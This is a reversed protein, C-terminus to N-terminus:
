RFDVFFLIRRFRKRRLVEYMLAIALRTKGTGTAMALLIDRQGRTIADEVAQIAKTQYPRLGTVGIERDALATQDEIEQELREILDRPSFWSPLARPEGTAPRADWFWIGSKTALQKVYPRGNTVFLFPVRFRDGGDVWPGMGPLEDVSLEIDRAYRKSQGLRGPVDKFERKAEIVGVCRGDIFLAYDVPGSRTPWEAIAMAKGYEPRCGNSHRLLITDVEWGAARLQDDVLVRTTAEDIELKEAQRVALHALMDIQSPAKAEAAKQVEQLAKHTEKLAQETDEAYSAWFAREQEIEEALALAALREAEAENQALRAKAENDSSQRVLQQLRRLEVELEGTADISAAPPVFPGAKFDPASGYTRHFWIAAQRALKLAALADGATGGEEHVARNGLSKLRYFIDGIDHPIANGRKLSFLVDDFSTRDAGDRLLAHAAAVEKALLEAFSRLKTLAAPPDSNFYHEALTALRLLRQDHAGLFGFNASDQGM